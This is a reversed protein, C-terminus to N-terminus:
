LGQGLLSHRFRENKSANVVRSGHQPNIGATRNATITSSKYLAQTVQEGAEGWGPPRPSPGDQLGEGRTTSADVHEPVGIHLPSAEGSPAGRPKPAPLM